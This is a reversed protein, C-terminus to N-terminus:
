ATLKTTLRLYDRWGAFRKRWRRRVRRAGWALTGNTAMERNHATQSLAFDDLARKRPDAYFRAIKEVGMGPTSLWGPLYERCLVDVDTFVKSLGLGTTPCASQFADGLLVVGPQVPEEVRYQDIRCTEVRGSVLFDGVVRTVGPLLRELENRPDRLFRRTSTDGASWYVWLNARMVSGVRFLTLYAVRERCDTPYYTVAEFGFPRRDPREITFGFALSQEERILRRQMGLGALLDGRLGCALAVLRASIREGGALTVRQSEAGTEISEVHGIRREVEPPIAARLANVIDQYFIGLQEVPRNQLVRGREAGRVERIQSAHPLVSDLLGFSRLLDAQDPEIKEAKFCAPYSPWRDVLAVRRGQRALVNAAVSGALGAGVILVDFPPDSAPIM